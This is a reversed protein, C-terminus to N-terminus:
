AAADTDGGATIAIPEPRGFLYGQAQDVRLERLYDLTTQDEVGEAVTAMGLGRALHVVARVVHRSAENTALDHVFERDIKLSDVPLSKLYTFGAYGTGFDDLAIQFGLSRLEALVTRAQDLNRVLETETVEFIVTSPDAGTRALAARVHPLLLPDTFSGGCLNVEVPMGSAALELSRDIVWRDLTPMFGLEEAAPIFRGPMVLTGDTDHMRMLLEHQVVAGSTLDIIPQAHLVIRDEQLASQLRALWSVAEVEHELAEERAKRGTIDTMVVVWSTGADDQLATATVAVPTRTGDRGLLVEDDCRISGDEAALDLDVLAVALQGSPDALYDSLLACSPDPVETGLMLQAAPNLYTLRGEADLTCLGEGMHDTVARLRDRATALEREARLRDTLDLSVGIYGTITGDPDRVPAIRVHAPFGTGDKRHLDLQGSWEHGTALTWLIRGSTSSGILAFTVEDIPRGLVEDASWGHLDEAARNWSTIRSDLDTSVVAAALQDLIHGEARLRDATGQGVTVDRHEIVVAAPGAGRHPVAQAAFWRQETPSHCPYTLQVPDTSGALLTRIGAAFRAAGDDDARDCVDLYNLGIGDVGGGHAAGYARWAANVEIVTGEGDLVAVHSPLSDLLARWSPEAAPDAHADVGVDDLDAPNARLAAAAARSRARGPRGAGPRSPDTSQPTSLM